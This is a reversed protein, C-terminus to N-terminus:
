KKRIPLKVTFTSGKGPKSNVEITGDHGEVFTKTIALGLGIGKAKSTFLPEFIKELNEEAIGVGTDTISISIWDPEQNIFEDPEQLQRLVFSLLKEDDKAAVLEDPINWMENGRKNFSVVKGQDDVVLIGDISTEKQTELLTNNFLLEDHAKKQETIDETHVMVLDPPVPAYSVALNKTKNLKKFHYEIERKIATKEKFSLALDELIQPQEAYMERATRGIFGAVNGGTIMEAADNFAILVFDNTSDDWQWTYTPVPLGKYQAKFKDESKKLAEHTERIDDIMMNLGVALSDIEDNKGSPEIQVSFDGQGVKMVTEIIAHIRDKKLEGNESM